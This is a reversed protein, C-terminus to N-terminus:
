GAERIPLRVRFTSGEGVRSIVELDGGMRHIYDRAEYVGIGMGAKGKTSDFPRFLREKIFAEDMGSGTDQVEIIARDTRKFLRVIVQGDDPTADQANRILHGIIAGCRDRNALIHIGSAQCDLSPVPSNASMTKVVEGLLGCVEVTTSEQVQMTDSRLHELLRNMKQVSNNVTTIADEMFLPNGKHKAANTVVLSLQAILNKLDHMVYSTLRNCAEFQKAEALAKSAELQALHVAVQRGATKVLDSDEWNFYQQAPSRALVIFGLMDDHVILPIVLWAGPMNALWEPLVLNNYLEPDREFEDIDILWERRSMFSILPHDADVTDRVAVKMQWNAVPEFRNMQRMWLVGGPSDIIEAISHIARERLRDDPQGSSLTRIFRLWEDRYDYKYHFFHKNILVRMSARVRGSFFLVMLVLGAGSLFLIQLVTGWKGGLDRIYYGGAGMALLYVGTALLATTHFVMRRSVFIDLSLRPDRAIAVALVPVAMANVFGRVEWVMVDFGQFMLATSYLYFDFIFIVGLGICLYKVARRSEVHANRMIQEVLVLGAVAMVLLGAYLLDFGLFSTSAPGAFLRYLVIAVLLVTYSATLATTIGFRRQAVRADTVSSMLVHGLFLLLSFSRVPEVLYSVFAADRYIALATFGLWVTSAVSAFKFANKHTRGQQGTLLVLTLVLFLVAGAGYSIVGINM